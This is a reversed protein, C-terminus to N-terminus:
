APEQSALVWSGFGGMSLGTLYQRDPDISYEKMTQDLAQLAMDTMKGSWREGPACQPMVVLAPYREPYLRIATGIGVQSQKLGDSGREGSGHLFLVVPWKMAPSYDRPVYLVYRYEKGDVAVTKDLFGTPAEAARAPAALLGLMAVVMPVLFRLM